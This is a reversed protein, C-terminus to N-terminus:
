RSKGALRRPPRGRRKAVVEGMLARFSEGDAEGSAAV